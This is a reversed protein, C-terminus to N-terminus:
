SMSSRHINTNVNNALVKIYETNKSQDPLQLLDTLNPTQIHDFITKNESEMDMKSINIRSDNMINQNQELASKTRTM